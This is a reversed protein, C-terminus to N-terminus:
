TKGYIKAMGDASTRVAFMGRARKGRLSMDNTGEKEWPQPEETQRGRDRDVKM